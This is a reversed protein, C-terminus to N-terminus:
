LRAMPKDGGGGTSEISVELGEEEGDGSVGINV